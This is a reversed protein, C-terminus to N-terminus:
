AVRLEKKVAGIGGEGGEEGEGGDGNEARTDEGGGSRLTGRKSAGIGASTRVGDHVSPGLTGTQLGGAAAHLSGSQMKTVGFVSLNFKGGRGTTFVTLECTTESEMIGDNCVKCVAM